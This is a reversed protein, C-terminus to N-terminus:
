KDVAKLKRKTDIHGSKLWDYCLQMNEVLIKGDINPDSLYYFVFRRLEDEDVPWKWPPLELNFDKDDGKDKEHREDDPPEDDGDKFEAGTKAM